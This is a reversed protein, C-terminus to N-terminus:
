AGRADPTREIRVARMRVNALGQSIHVTHVALVVPDSRLVVREAGAGGDLVLPALTYEGSPMYPLVFAFRAEAGTGAALPPAVETRAGFLLQAMRNRVLFCVSPAGIATEAHFGIRIEVRQGGHLLAVQRGTADFLDVVTVAGPVPADPLTEPNFGRPTDPAPPATAPLATDPTDTDHIEFGATRSQRQWTTTHYRRLVKDTAGAAALAGGELWIARDCLARVAADDHSVFLLTGGAACFGRLFELCKMQFAIDGVSLIEDVILIDPRCHINISFALRAYMGSSYESIRRDFFEGLEAFSEIDDVVAAFERQSMGMITASFRANERGTYDQHLGAGLELLTAVRGQVTATGTSATLTKSIIKLLTSKGAGNRGVVGLAEGRRVEFSVDRLVWTEEGTGTKFLADRLRAGESAHRRYAKGLGQVRIAVDSSM